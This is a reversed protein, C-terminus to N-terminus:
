APNPIVAVISDDRIRRWTRDLGDWYCLVGTTSNGQRPEDLVFVTDGNFAGAILQATNVGGQADLVPVFTQFFALADANEQVTLTRQTVVTLNGTTIIGPGPAGRHFMSIPFVDGPWVGVLEDSLQPMLVGQPFNPTIAYVNDVM